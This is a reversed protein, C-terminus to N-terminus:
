ISSRDSPCFSLVLNRPIVMSLLKDHFSCKLLIHECAALPIPIKYMILCKSGLRIRRESYLVRMKGYM